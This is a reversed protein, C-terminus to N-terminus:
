YSSRRTNIPTTTAFTTAFTSFTKSKCHDGGIRVYM